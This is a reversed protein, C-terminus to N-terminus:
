LLWQLSDFLMGRWRLEKLHEQRSYERENKKQGTSGVYDSGIICLASVSGSEDFSATNDYISIYVVETELGTAKRFNVVRVVPRHGDDRVVKLGLKEVALVLGRLMHGRKLGNDAIYDDARARFWADTDYPSAM